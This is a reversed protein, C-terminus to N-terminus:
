RAYVGPGTADASVAHRDLPLSRLFAIFGWLCIIVLLTAGVGGWFANSKELRHLVQDRSPSPPPPAPAPLPKPPVIVFVRDM